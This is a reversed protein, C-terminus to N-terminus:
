LVIDYIENFAMFLWWLFGVGDVFRKKGGNAMPNGNLTAAAGILDGQDVWDVLLFNPNRDGNLPACGSAEALVSPPANTVSAQARNPITINFLEMDLYHNLLNM